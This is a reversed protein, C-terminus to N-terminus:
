EAEEEAPYLESWDILAEFGSHVAREVPRGVRSDEGTDIGISGPNREVPEIPATLFDAAVTAGLLVAIFHTMVLTFFNNM